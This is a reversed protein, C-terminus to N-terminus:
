RMEEESSFFPPSFIFVREAGAWVRLWGDTPANSVLTRSILSLVLDECVASVSKNVVLVDNCFKVSPFHSENASAWGAHYALEAEKQPSQSSVSLIGSLTHYLYSQRPCTKKANGAVVPALLGIPQMSQLSVIM